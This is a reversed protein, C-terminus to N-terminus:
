NKFITMANPEKGITIVKKKDMKLDVINLTGNLYDGIYLTDNYKVIGRPMGNIKCKNEETFTKLNIISIYEDCFNSVYLYDDDEYLDVPAFGVDIRELIELNDLSLMVIEGKTNHGLKSVAVYLYKKNKSIISKIPIHGVQIRTLERNDTCDIVSINDEGMNCVFALKKEDIIQINHPFIGTPIEFDLQNKEIDYTILSNLDGCAVYMRNEYCILDNPHSGIYINGEEKFEKLNIISIRNNYSNSVLLKNNYVCSEHPGFPKEGNTLKMEKTKMTECDFKIISDSGTNCVIIYSM